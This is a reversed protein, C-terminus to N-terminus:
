DDIGISGEGVNGWLAGYAKQNFKIDFNENYDQSHEEAIFLFYIWFAAIVLAGKKMLDRSYLFNVENHLRALDGSYKQSYYTHPSNRIFWSRLEFMVSINDLNHEFKPSSFDSSRIGPGEIFEKQRAVRRLFGAIM